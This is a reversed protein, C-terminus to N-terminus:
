SLGHAGSVKNMAASTDNQANKVGRGCDTRQCHSPQHDHCRSSFYALVQDLNLFDEPSQLALPSSTTIGCVTRSLTDQAPKRKHSSTTFHQELWM